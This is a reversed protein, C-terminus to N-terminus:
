RSAISQVNSLLGLWIRQSLLHLPFNNYLVHPHFFFSATSSGAPSSPISVGNNISKPAYPDPLGRDIMQKRRLLSAAVMAFTTRVAGM